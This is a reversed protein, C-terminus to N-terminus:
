HLPRNRTETHRDTQPGSGFLIRHVHSSLRLYTKPQETSPPPTRINLSRTSLICNICRACLGAIIWRQTRAAYSNVTIEPSITRHANKIMLTNIIRGFM